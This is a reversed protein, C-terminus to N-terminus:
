MFTPYYKITTTYICSVSNFGPTLRPFDLWNVNLANDVGNRLIRKNIGDFTLREGASVNNFTAGGLQYSLAAAAVTVEYICDTYPMTSRCIVTGGGASVEAVELAEHRIGKFSYSAGLIVGASTNAEIQAEGVSEAYASYYFEDPLWLEVKGFLAADFTSKYVTAIQLTPALFKVKITILRMGFFSRLQQWNTRNAGLYVYNSLETPGVTFDILAAGGYSSFPSGNITPEIKTLNLDKFDNYNM